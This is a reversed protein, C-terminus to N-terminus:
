CESRHEPTLSANRVLHRLVPMLSDAFREGAQNALTSVRAIQSAAEPKREVTELSLGLWMQIKQTLALANSKNLKIMSDLQLSGIDM